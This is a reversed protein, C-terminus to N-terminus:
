GRRDAWRPPGGHGRAIKFITRRVAARLAAPQPRDAPALLSATRYSPHKRAIKVEARGFGYADRTFRRSPKAFVEFAIADPRYASKIGSEQIRLTLEFDERPYPIDEDFGDLQRLLDVGLSSNANLFATWNPDRAQASLLQHHYRLYWQHTEWAALTAPSSPDVFLSGHVRTEPMEAHARAHENVLWNSCRIDDDLFLVVDGAAVAIGTNRAAAPGRNPCEIVEFACPATLSRAYAASDDTSGDVVLIVEYDAPPFEQHLLAPLTQRLLERRNYTTVVVSVRVPKDTWINM